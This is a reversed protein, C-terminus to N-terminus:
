IKRAIWEQHDRRIRLGTVNGKRFLLDVSFGRTEDWSMINWGVLGTASAPQLPTIAALSPSRTYTGQIGNGDWRFKYAGQGREYNLQIITNEIGPEGAPFTGLVEFSQLAGKTQGIGRIEDGISKQFDPDNGGVKILPTMDGKLYASLIAETTTTLNARGQLSKEDGERLVDVADQNAAGIQLQGREIRIILKGGSTLQYTGPARRAIAGYASNFAPPSTYPEGFIIKPIVEDAKIHTPYWDHRINCLSLVLVNEDKFWRFASGFGDSDGGHYILTTGRPTKEGWWGYAYNKLVPRWLKERATQSLVGTSQLTLYWQYLDALTSTIGGEGLHRWSTASWALPSGERGFDDYGRAILAPSVQAVLAGWFGTRRMGAPAFIHESLYQRFPKRSVTEVLAALLVYGSNSYAFRTGPESSLPQNFIRALMEERSIEMPGGVQRALGATHSLLQHITIGAKDAPVNPLYHSIADTVNLRNEHELKLIAAATFQKALSGIDFVTDITNPIKEAQNALGYAKHLVIQHDRMVLLAGSFGFGTLRRLYEDIERGLLGAVIGRGASQRRNNLTTKQFPEAAFGINAIFTAFLLALCFKKRRMIRM